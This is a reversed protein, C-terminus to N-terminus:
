CMIEYNFIKIALCLVTTDGNSDWQPYQLRGSRNVGWASFYSCELFVLDIGNSSIGQSRTDGLYPRGTPLIEVVLGIEINLIVSFAFRHKKKIKESYNLIILSWKVQMGTHTRIHPEYDVLSYFLRGCFECEENGYTQRLKHFVEM